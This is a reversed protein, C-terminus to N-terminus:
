IELTQVTKYESPANTLFNPSDFSWSVNFSFDSEDDSILEYNELKTTALSTGAYKKYLNDFVKEIQNVADVYSLDRKKTASGNITFNARNSYGLDIVDYDGSRDFLPNSSIQRRQPLFQLDYDFNLFGSPPGERNDFSLSFSYVGNFKDYISGSALPEPNLTYEANNLYNNYADYALDLPRIGSSRSLVNDWAVKLPGKGKIEGDIDVTILNVGSNISTSYSFKTSPSNDAAYSFNFNIRRNLPDYNVGSIIPIESFNTQGSTLNSAELAAYFPNFNNFKEKIDNFDVYRSGIVDGNISLSSIGEIGSNLDVAFRLVGKGTYHLDAIYNETVSYSNTFRNINESISDLVFEYEPYKKTCVFHPYYGSIGTRSNVYNKANDLGNDGFKNTNFGKCGVTHSLNLTRNQNESFNLSDTVDTVGFYGLFLDEPYHSLNITYDVFRDYYAESFSINEVKVNKKDFLLSSDQWIQLNQFDKGFGSIIKEQNYLIGTYNCGSVTGKLIFDEKTGWREGLNIFEEEREIFPTPQSIFPNEGNYKIEVAM